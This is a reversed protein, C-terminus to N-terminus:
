VDLMCDLWYKNEHYQRIFEHLSDTLKDQKHYIANKGGSDKRNISLFKGSQEEFFLLQQEIDNQTVIERIRRDYKYEGELLNLVTLSVPDLMRNIGGKRHMFGYGIEEYFTKLELPFPNLREYAMLLDAKDPVYFYHRFKTVTKIGTTAFLEQSIRYEQLFTYEM